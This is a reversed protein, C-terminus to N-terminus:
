GARELALGLEDAEALAAAIFRALSPGPADARTCLSTQFSLGPTGLPV